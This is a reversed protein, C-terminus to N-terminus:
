GFVFTILRGHGSIIFGHWRLKFGAKFAQAGNQRVKVRGAGCGAARGRKGEKAGGLYFDTADLLAEGPRMLGRRGYEGALEGPPGALGEEEGSSEAM